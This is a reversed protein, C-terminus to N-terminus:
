RRKPHDKVRSNEDLMRSVDTSGIKTAPALETDERASVRRSTVDGSWPPRQAAYSMPDDHQGSWVPPKVSPQFPNTFAPPPNSYGLPTSNQYPPSTFATQLSRDNEPQFTNGPHYGLQSSSIHPDYGRGDSPYRLAAPPPLSGLTLTPHSRDHPPLAEPNFVHSSYQTTRSREGNRVGAHRAGQTAPNVRRTSEAVVQRGSYTSHATKSTKPVNASHAVGDQGIPKREIQPGSM